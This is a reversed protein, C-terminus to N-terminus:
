EGGGQVSQLAPLLAARLAAEVQAPDHRGLLPPMVQGMAWRAYDTHLYTAYTEWGAGDEAISASM